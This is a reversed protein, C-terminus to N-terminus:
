VLTQNPDNSVLLGEFADDALGQGEDMVRVFYLGRETLSRTVSVRAAQRARRGTEAVAAGDVPAEPLPSKPATAAAPPAGLVSPTVSKPAPRSGNATGNSTVKPPQPSHSPPRPVIGAPASKTTAPPSPTLIKPAPAIQASMPTPRRASPPPPPTSTAAPRSSPPPPRSRSELLFPKEDPEGAPVAPAQSPRAPPTPLRRGELEPTGNLRSSLSAATRALALTRVDDGSEGASEAARQLWRLAEAADGKAGFIAATELSSVVTESDGAEPAPIDLMSEM